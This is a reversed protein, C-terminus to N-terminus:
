SEHCSPDAAEICNIMLHFILIVSFINKGADKLTYVAHRPQMRGKVWHQSSFAGAGVNGTEM